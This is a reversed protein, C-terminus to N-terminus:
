CRGGLYVEDVLVGLALESVEEVGVCCASEYDTMEFVIVYDEGCVWIEDFAYGPVAVVLVVM